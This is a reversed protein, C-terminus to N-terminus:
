DTKGTIQIKSNSGIEYNLGMPICVVDLADVLNRNSFGGTYHKQHIDPLTFTVNFQRELEKFVEELPVNEFSFEGERWGTNAVVNKDRFGTLVDGRVTASQGPTLIVRGMKNKVEVKGTLCSVKFLNERSQINFSTGLVRISAFKTQVVFSKGKKVQFFAEGQLRLYRKDHFNGPSYSLESEANMTVMSGDPLRYEIHEGRPVTIRTSHVKYLLTWVGALILLFAAAQWM